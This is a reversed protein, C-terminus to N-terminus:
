SPQAGASGLPQGWGCAAAAAAGLRRKSEGGQNQHGGDLKRKGAGCVSATSVSGIFDRHGISWPYFLHLYM